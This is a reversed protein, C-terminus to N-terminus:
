ESNTAMWIPDIVMVQSVREAHLVKTCSMTFTTLLPSIITSEVVSAAPWRRGGDVERPLWALSIANHIVNGAKACGAEIIKPKLNLCQFQSSFPHHTHIYTVKETRLSM